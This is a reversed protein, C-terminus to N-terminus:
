RDVGLAEIDLMQTKSIWRGDSTRGEIRIFYPGDARDETMVTIEKPSAAGLRVSPNWYVTNRRDPLSLTRRRDYVPNYFAKPRQWGLPMSVLANTQRKLSETRSRANRLEALVIGGYSKALFADSSLHTTVSLKEVENLYIMEAMPWDTLFGDVYLNVKLYEEGGHSIFGTKNNIMEERQEDWHLSPNTMLIYSFLSLNDNPQLQERTKTMPMESFGFPTRVRPAVAQIFTTRITDHQADIQTFTDEDSLEATEPMDTRLGTPRRFPSRWSLSSVKPFFDKTLVPYYPKRTGGKDVVTIFVTGDPFDLSDVFFRSERNVSMVQSFNLEPAMLTLTYNHPKGGLVSRVEGQLSQTEEMPYTVETVSLLDEYYTWGQIMLLLDLHSQRTSAPIRRDFYYDPAEIDGRVESSLLMYSALNGEQQFPRFAGRVVSVSVEASDIQSGDPCSLRISWTKRPLYDPSPCNVDLAATLAPDDVFVTREALVQGQTDTLVFKQLGPYSVPVRLSRSEDIRGLVARIGGRWVELQVTRGTHNMVRVAFSDGSRRVQMTAGDRSAEPLDWSGTDSVLRYMHGEEPTFGFLGMGAHETRVDCILEGRDDVLKGSFGAGSGDPNMVKFGMSAYDGNYYRGGEPYFSVDLPGEAAAAAPETGDYVDIRAHFMWEEPWNLQWRTYARLIYRGGELNEPLDLYGAFGDQSMRIKNRLATEGSEGDLLEVYLFRSTDPVPAISEVYGKMWITEGAAFYTRDLHVFVKEPAYAVQGQVGWGFVLLFLFCILINNNKGM